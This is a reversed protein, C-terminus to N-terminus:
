RLGALRTLALALGLPLIILAARRWAHATGIATLCWLLMACWGLAGLWIGAYLRNLPRPDPYHAIVLLALLWAAVVGGLWAAMGRHRWQAPTPRAAARRVPPHAGPPHM